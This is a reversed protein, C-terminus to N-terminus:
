PKYGLIELQRDLQWKRRVGLMRVELPTNSEELKEQWYKKADLFSRIRIDDIKEPSKVNSLMKKSREVKNQDLHQMADDINVYLMSHAGARKLDVALKALRIETNVYLRRSEEEVSTELALQNKARVERWAARPANIFNQLNSGVGRRLERFSEKVGM